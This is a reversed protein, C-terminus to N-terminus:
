NPSLTVRIQPAVAYRSASSNRPFSRAAADAAKPARVLQIDGYQVPTLNYRPEWVATAKLKITGEFFKAITAPVKPELWLLKYGHLSTDFLEVRNLKLGAAPREVVPRVMKVPDASVPDREGVMVLLPIRPALASMVNRLLFGEGDPLPSVLVM